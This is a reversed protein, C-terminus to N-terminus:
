SASADADSAAASAASSGAAGSASEDPSTVTSASQVGLAQLACAYKHQRLNQRANLLVLLVVVSRLGLPYNPDQSSMWAYYVALGLGVVVGLVSLRLFLDKRAVARAAFDELSSVPEGPDM